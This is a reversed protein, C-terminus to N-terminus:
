SVEIQTMLKIEELIGSVEMCRALEGAFVAARGKTHVEMALAEAQGSSCRTAKVIQTIVEDFTHIDDNFLIVKAPDQTLVEDDQEPKQLPQTTM